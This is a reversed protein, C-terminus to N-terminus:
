PIRRPDLIDHTHPVDGGSHSHHSDHAHYISPMGPNAMAAGDVPASSRNDPRSARDGSNFDIRTVHVLALPSGCRDCVPEHRLHVGDAQFPPPIEFVRYQHPCGVEVCRFLHALVVTGRSM